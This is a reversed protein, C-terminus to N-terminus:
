VLQRVERIIKLVVAHPDLSRVVANSTELLTRLEGLKELGDRELRILSSALNGVEDQRRALEHADRPIDQESAPLAQHQHALTHLPRIVCGLLLLWFLLGGLALFFAAALLWLHFQNVVAFAEGTPRQVVVAWNATSVPASSFLWDQGDPGLGLRSVIQGDLAENAGPLEDLVTQLFRSTDPTAVLVGDSDIISLMVQRGQVHQARVIRSLPESMEFLSISTAVIGIRQGNSAFVSQAVIIGPRFEPEVAAGVSFVPHTTLLAQQVVNPPSFQSGPVINQSPQAALLIGVPDLWYICDVDSRAAKFASLVRLIAAPNQEQSILQSLHTLSSEDDSLQLGAALAIEQALAQDSAQVDNRLRQEVILDIGIGGILVVVAFFLYVSLLQNLLSRQIFHLM